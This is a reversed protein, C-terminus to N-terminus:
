PFLHCNYHAFLVTCHRKIRHARMSTNAGNRHKLERSFPEGFFQTCLRTTRGHSTFCRCRAIRTLRSLPPETPFDSPLLQAGVMREKLLLVVSSSSFSDRTVAVYEIEPICTSADAKVPIGQLVALAPTRSLEDSGESVSRLEVSSLTQSTM